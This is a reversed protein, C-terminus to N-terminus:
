QESLIFHILIVYSVTRARAKNMKLILVSKSLKGKFSYIFLNLSRAQKNTFQVKKILLKENGTLM